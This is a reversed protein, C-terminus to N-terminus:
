SEHRLKFQTLIIFCVFTTQVAYINELLTPPFITIENDTSTNEINWLNEETNNLHKKKNFVYFPMFFFTSCKANVNIKEISMIFSFFSTTFYTTLLTSTKFVYKEYMKLM